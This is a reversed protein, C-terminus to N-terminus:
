VASEKSEGYFSWRRRKWGSRMCWDGDRGDAGEEEVGELWLATRLSALGPGPLHRPLLLPGLLFCEGGEESEKKEM